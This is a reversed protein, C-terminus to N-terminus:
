EVPEPLALAEGLLRAIAANRKLRLHMARCSYHVTGLPMDLLAAADRYTMGAVETYIYARAQKELRTHTRKMLRQVSTMFRAVALEAAFDGSPLVTERGQKKEFLVVGPKRRMQELFRPNKRGIEWGFRQYLKYASELSYADEEVNYLALFEAISPRAYGKGKVRVQADAYRCLLHKHYKFLRLGAILGHQALHAALRDNVVLEIYHTLEKKNRLDDPTIRTNIVEFLYDHSELTVPEAGYESVLIARSMPHCPINVKLM